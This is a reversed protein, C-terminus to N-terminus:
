NLDQNNVYPIVIDIPGSATISKQKVGNEDGPIVFTTNNYKKMYDRIMQDTNDRM